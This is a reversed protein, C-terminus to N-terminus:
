IKRHRVDIGHAVSVHLMHARQLVAQMLLLNLVLELPGEELQVLDLTSVRIVVNAVGRFDVELSQARSIEDELVLRLLIRNAGM